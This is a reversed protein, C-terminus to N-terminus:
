AAGKLLFEASKELARYLPREAELVPCGPDHQGYDPAGCSKCSCEMQGRAADWRDDWGISHDLSARIQERMYRIMEEANM